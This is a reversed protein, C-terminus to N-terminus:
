SNEFPIDANRLGLKAGLSYGIMAV